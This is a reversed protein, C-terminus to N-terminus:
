FKFVFCIRPTKVHAYSSLKLDEKQKMCLMKLTKEMRKKIQGQATRLSEDAHSKRRLLENVIGITQM